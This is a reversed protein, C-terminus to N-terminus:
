SVLTTLSLTNGDPDTFWAVRDGSPTEWIGLEDQAMGEYRAFSVGMESLSRVAAAVDPVEWGAITFPQAVFDPVPTIRLTTGNAKLVLAFPTDAIVSLGLTGEYFTRAVAPDRVPIFGVFSASELVPAVTGTGEGSVIPRQHGVPGGCLGDLAVLAPARQM